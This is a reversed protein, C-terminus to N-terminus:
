FGMDTLQTIGKLAEDVNGCDSARKFELAAQAAWSRSSSDIRGYDSIKWVGFLGRWYFITGKDFKDNQLLRNSFQEAESYNGVLALAFLRMRWPFISDPFTRVAQTANEKLLKFDGIGLIARLYLACALPKSKDNKLVAFAYEGAQRYLRKAEKKDALEDELSAKGLYYYSIALRMNDSIGNTSIFAKIERQCKGYDGVETLYIAYLPFTIESSQLDEPDGAFAFAIRTFIGGEAILALLGEIHKSADIRNPSSPMAGFEQLQGGELHSTIMDIPTAFNLNQSDRWYFKTIGILLGQGDTLAGGSSGPSIPATTQIVRGLEETERVASIIGEAVTGELGRPSGITYAKDGAKIVAVNGLEIPTYKHHPNLQIVAFDNTVDVFTFGKVEVEFGDPLKARIAVAGDIVHFCTVAVGGTTCIVGSGSGVEKGKDDLVILSCVAKAADSVGAHADPSLILLFIILAYTKM